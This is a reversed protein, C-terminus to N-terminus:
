TRRESAKPAMKLDKVSSSVDSPGIRRQLWSLIRYMLPSMMAFKQHQLWSLIRYAAPALKLNHVGIAGDSIWYAAPSLKLNQV